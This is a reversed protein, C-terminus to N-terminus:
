DPLQMFARVSGRDALLYRRVGAAPDIGSAVLYARLGRLHPHAIIHKPNSKISWAAEIKGAWGGQVTISYTVGPITGKLEYVGSRGGKEVDVEMPNSAQGPPDDTKWQVRYKGFDDWAMWHVRIQGAVKVVGSQTAPLTPLPPVFRATPPVTELSTITPAPPLGFRPKGPGPMVPDTIPPTTPITIPTTPIAIFPASRPKVNAGGTDERVPLTITASLAFSEWSQPIGKGDPMNDTPTSTEDLLRPSAFVTVAPQGAPLEVTTSAPSRNNKIHVQALRAATSGLQGLYVEIVDPKQPGFTWEVEVPCTLGRVDGVVKLQMSTIYM